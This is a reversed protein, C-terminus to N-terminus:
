GKRAYLNNAGFSNITSQETVPIHAKAPDGNNYSAVVLQEGDQLQGQAEELTKANLKRYTAAM